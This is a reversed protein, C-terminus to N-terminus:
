NMLHHIQEEKFGEKDDYFSTCTGYILREYSEIYYGNNDQDTTDYSDMMICVDDLTDETGMNDYGIITQWHWGYPNWEVMIPHGQKLQKQVWKPDALKDPDSESSVFTWGCTLGLDALNEFVNQLYKVDTGVELEDTERLM